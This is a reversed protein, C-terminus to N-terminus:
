YVLNIFQVSPLRSGVVTESVRQGLLRFRDFGFEFVSQTFDLEAQRFLTEVRIQKVLVLVETSDDGENGCRCESSLTDRIHEQEEGFQRLLSHVLTKHVNGFQRTRDEFDLTDLSHAHRDVHDQRITVELQTIRDNQASRISRDYGIDSRQQCWLGQTFKADLHAQEKAFM